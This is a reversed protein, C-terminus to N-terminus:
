SSPIWKYTTDGVTSGIGVGESNYIFGMGGGDDTAPICYYGEPPQWVNSDGDWIVTDIVENSSTKIIHYRAM